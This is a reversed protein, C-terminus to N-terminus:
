SRGWARSVMGVVPPSVMYPTSSLLLEPRQVHYYSSISCSLVVGLMAAVTVLVALLVTSYGRSLVMSSSGIGHSLSSLLLALM